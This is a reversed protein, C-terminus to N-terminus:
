RGRGGRRLQGEEGGLFADGASALEPAELEDVDLGAADDVSERRGGRHRETVGDVGVPAAAVGAGVAEGAGGVGVEVEVRAGVEVSDDDDLDVGDLPESGLQGRLAPGTVRHRHARVGVRILAGFALVVEGAADDLDEGLVAVRERDEGLAGQDQAVPVQEGVGGSAGVDGEAERDAGEVLIHPAEGLGPRGGGARRRSATARRLSAPIRVLTSM